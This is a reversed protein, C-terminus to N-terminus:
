DVPVTDQAGSRKPFFVRFTSGLSPDSEVTIAGDHSRVIGLVVALGLGRGTFKSTFFPDFIKEINEQAIGCGSDRVELCVYAIDVPQWDVPYRQFEPINDAAVTKVGFHINGRHGCSEVANTIVQVL